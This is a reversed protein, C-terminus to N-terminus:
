FGTIPKLRFRRQHDATVSASRGPSGITVDTGSWSMAGFGAALAVRALESRRYDDQTSPPVRLVGLQFGAGTRQRSKARARRAEDVCAGASAGWRSQRDSIKWQDGPEGHAPAIRRQLGWIDPPAGGGRRLAPEVVAEVLPEGGVRASPVPDAQRPSSPIRVRTGGPCCRTPGFESNGGAAHGGPCLEGAAGGVVM